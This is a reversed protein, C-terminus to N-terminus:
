AAGTLDRMEEELEAPTAVTDRVIARVTDALLRRATRLRNEVDDITIGLADAVAQQAPPPEGRLDPVDIREFVLRVDEPLKTLLTEVARRMVELKWARDFAEDPTAGAHAPENAELEQLPILAVRGGRRWAAAEADCNAVFRRLCKQLFTRFRSHGAFQELARREMLHLLFAQTLDEADERSRGRFRRLYVYIPRWYAGALLACLGAQVAPDRANAIQSCTTPFEVREHRTDM